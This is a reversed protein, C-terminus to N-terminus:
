ETGLLRGALADLYGKRFREDSAALGRATLLPPKSGTMPRKPFEM